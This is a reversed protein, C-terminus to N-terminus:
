DNKNEEEKEEEKDEGEEEVDEFEVNGTGPEGDKKEISKKLNKM